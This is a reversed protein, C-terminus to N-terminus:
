FLSQNKKPIWVIAWAFSLNVFCNIYVMITYINYMLPLSADTKILFFVEIFAKYTFYVLIGGSILFLPSRFLNQKRATMLRTLQEIALFSMVFASIIRFGANPTHLSHLLLNDIIWVIMLGFLLFKSMHKKEQFIGWNLFLWIYLLAETLVFINGNIANSRFYYVALLSISHNLFGLWVVYYFPRYTKMTQKFRVLGIVAAFVISYGLIAAVKYLDM